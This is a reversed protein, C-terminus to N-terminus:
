VHMYFYVLYHMSFVLFNILHAVQRQINDNNVVRKLSVRSEGNLRVTHVLLLVVILLLCLEVICVFCMSSSYSLKIFSELPNHKHM